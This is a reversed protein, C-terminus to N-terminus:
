IAGVEGDTLRSDYIRVQGVWSNWVNIGANDSGVNLTSPNVPLTCSLDTFQPSGNRYGEADDTDFAVTHRTWTNQSISVSANDIQTVAGSDALTRLNSGSTNSLLALRNSATGDNFSHAYDSLGVNSDQIIYHDVTFDALPPSALTYELGSDAARTVAATRTKIPSSPYTGEEVQLGNPSFYYDVTVDDGAFTLDGPGELAAVLVLGTTTANATSTIYCRWWGGGLDIAGAAGVGAGPTVAGTTLNFETASGGPFGADWRAYIYEKDGSKVIFSFVYDTGSTVSFGAISDTFFHSNLATDSIFELAKMTTFPSDETASEPIAVRQLNWYTTSIDENGRLGNEITDELLAANRTTSGDNYSGVRPWGQGVLYFEDATSVANYKQLYASSARSFTPSGAGNVIEKIGTVQALIDASLAQVGTSGTLWSARRYLAFRGIEGRFTNVGQYNAAYVTNVDIGATGGLAGGDVVAGGNVSCYANGSRDAAVVVVQWGESWAGTFVNNSTLINDSHILEWEDNLNKRLNIGTGSITSEVGFVSRPDNISQSNVIAVLVYDETISITSPTGSWNRTEEPNVSKDTTNNWPVGRDVQGGSGSGTLAPGVVADWTSLTADAGDYLYTPSVTFGNLTIDAGLGTLGPSSFNMDFLAAVSQEDENLRQYWPGPPCRRDFGRLPGRGWFGTLGM